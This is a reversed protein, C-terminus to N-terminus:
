EYYRITPWYLRILYIIAYMHASTCWVCVCVCVHLGGNGGYSTVLYLISLDNQSFTFTLIEQITCSYFNVTM